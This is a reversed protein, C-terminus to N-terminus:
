YSLPIKYFLDLGEPEQPTDGIYGGGMLIQSRPGRRSQIPPVMQGVRADQVGLQGFGVLMDETEAGANRRGLRTTAVEHPSQPGTSATISITTSIVTLAIIIVPQWVVKYM